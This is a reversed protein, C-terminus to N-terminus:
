SYLRSYVLINGWINIQMINEKREAGDCEGGGDNKM